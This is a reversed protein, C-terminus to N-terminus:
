KTRINAAILLQKTYEAKPNKYVEKVEGSEEVEGNKMIYVRSCMNYVVRLDHSIFIISLNM